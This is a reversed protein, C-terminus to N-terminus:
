VPIDQPTAIKSRQSAKSADKVVISFAVTIALAASVMGGAMFANIVGYAPEAVVATLCATAPAAAVGALLWRWYRERVSDRRARAHSAGVLTIAVALWVPILHFWIYTTPVETPLREFLLAYGISSIIALTLLRYYTNLAGPSTDITTPLSRYTLMFAVAGSFPAVVGLSLSGAGLNDLMSPQPLLPHIGIWLVRLLPATMMQAINFGMWARHALVDGRRIASLAQWGSILTAIGLVWLQLDFASGVFHNMPMTSILFVLATLVTTAMLILYTRGLRRHLAPRRTRLRTSFQLMSLALALGGLTTHVLMVVRHQSYDVHRVSELSGPGVAYTRGNVISNVSDQLRTTHFFLPWAYSVALPMYLVAAAVVIFFGVRLFRPRPVFSTPMM